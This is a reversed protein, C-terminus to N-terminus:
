NRYKYCAAISSEWQGRSKLIYSLIDRVAGEGGKLNSIYSAVLKVEEVADSPCGVFGSMRMCQLDNLDDGLYAVNETKLSSEAMFKELYSKKDMISQNIYDVNLEKMRKLTAACERGTLIMTKIGVIKAAFFGAADRTSFKKMENGHEDYYIGSDTLTGDVDVVVLKIKALEGEPEKIVCNTNIYYTTDM